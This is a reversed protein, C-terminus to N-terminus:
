EVFLPETDTDIVCEPITSFIIGSTSELFRKLFDDLEEKTKEVAKVMEFETALHGRQQLSYVLAVEGLGRVCDNLEDSLHAHSEIEISDKVLDYYKRQAKELNLKVQEPSFRVLRLKSKSQKIYNQATMKRVVSSM